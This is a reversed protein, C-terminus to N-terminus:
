RWLVIYFALSSGHFPETDVVDIDKSFRALIRGSPTKEFFEFPAGLIGNLLFKHLLIATRICQLHPIIEAFLAGLATFYMSQPNHINQYKQTFTYNKRKTFLNKFKHKLSINANKM